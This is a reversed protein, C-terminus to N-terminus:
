RRYNFLVMRENMVTLPSRKWIPLAILHGSSCEISVDAPTGWRAYVGDQPAFTQLRMATLVQFRVCVFRAL